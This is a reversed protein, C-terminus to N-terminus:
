KVISKLTVDFILLSNGPINSTGTQGYGLDPHLWLKYTSGVNMLLLGEKMGKILNSLAFEVDTGQDMVTGDLLTLTYDITVTDDEKPMLGNAVTLAHYQLGSETTIVDPNKANESLFEEAEVLNQGYLYSYYIDNQEESSFREVSNSYDVFGQAFALSNFDPYYSSYMQAYSYGLTWYFKASQDEFSTLDASTANSAEKKCSILAFCAAIILTIVLFKKM